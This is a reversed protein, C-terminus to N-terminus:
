HNRRGRDKYDLMGCANNDRQDGVAYWLKWEKREDLFYYTNEFQFM